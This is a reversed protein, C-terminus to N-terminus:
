YQRRLSSSRFRHAFGFIGLLGTALLAMSTPEPVVSEGFQLDDALFLNRTMGPLDADFTVRDVNNFNFTYNHTATPDLVTSFTGMVTTGLYATVTLPVPQHFGGLTPNHFALFNGSQLSFATPSSITAPGYGNWACFTGSTACRSLTAGTTGGYWALPDLAFWNSWNVGAYGLPVAQNQTMGEFTATQAGLSITSLASIVFARLIFRIPSM